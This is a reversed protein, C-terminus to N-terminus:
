AVDGIEEATHRLAEIDRPLEFAGRVVHVRAPDGGAAVLRPKIDIAASDESSIVLVNRPAGFMEGNTVLACLQALYTGKGAGKKGTLLHFAARQLLPKDIWEISRMEVTDLRTLSLGSM